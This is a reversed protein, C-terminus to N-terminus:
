IPVGRLEAMTRHGPAILFRRLVADLTGSPPNTSTGLALVSSSWTTFGVLATTSWATFGNGVDLRIAPAITLDRCQVCVEWISTSPNTDAVGTAGGVNDFLAASVVSGAGAGIQLTKTTQDGLIMLGVTPATAADGAWYPKSFRMYVTLDQPPADFTTTVTDAQTTLATTTTKRYQEPYIKNSAMVGGAYIDGQEGSVDAPMIQVANTNAATLSTTQLRLLYVGDALAIAGLDTGTTVAVTPVLSSGSYTVTASLRDASATTDRVKIRTGGAAPSKGRRVFISFGKKSNGTFTVNQSYQAISAGSTDGILDLVVDGIRWAAATRTPTNSATWTTGFDESQVVANTRNSGIFLGHEWQAAESNYTAAWAPQGAVYTAVRGVSDLATTESTRAVTVTHGTPTTLSFDEVGFDFLMRSTRERPRRFALSPFSLAM